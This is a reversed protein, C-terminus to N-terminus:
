EGSPLAHRQRYEAVKAQGERYIEQPSAFANILATHAGEELRRKDTLISYGVILKHLIDAPIYGRKAREVEATHELEAFLKDSLNLRKQLNYETGRYPNATSARSALDAKDADKYMKRWNEITRVPLEYYVSAENNGHQLAYAIVALVFVHHYQVKKGLVLHNMTEGHKRADSSGRKARPKRTGKVQVQKATAM